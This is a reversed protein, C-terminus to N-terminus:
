AIQYRFNFIIVNAFIEDAFQHDEDMKKQLLRCGAQDRALTSSYKCIEVASLDLINSIPKYQNNINNQQQIMQKNPKAQM